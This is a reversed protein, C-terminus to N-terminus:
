ATEASARLEAVRARLRGLEALTTEVREREMRVFRVYPGVGNKLRTVTNESEREFQTSLAAMLRTKLDEM